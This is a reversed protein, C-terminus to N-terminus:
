SRHIPIEIIFKTGTGVTSECWLNGGHKEAVVQYSIALGMGTGKGVPKTTFFPDFLRSRLDEPIGSGNDAITIRLFNQATKFTVISIKNPATVIDEFSRDRNSEELADIANAIINMFVQNLQGAYCEVLPLDDYQKLVEIAPREAKAKLRHQLIMLTNDIGEHIDVPKFESEDLRSFNRLSIVIDRIRNSGVRMSKLINALDERLFDLDVEELDDQLSQSPNPYQKQYADLLRLLDQSHQNLHALNGHIFNVPNNIEHAVGAVMQGLASMKEGQIMQSQALQLDNLTTELMKNSTQQAEILQKVFQMYHNFVEAMIGIEDQSTVAVRLNFDQDQISQRTVETMARLPRVAVSTILWALLLGIAGSLLLSGIIINAQLVRAQNTLTAAEEIEDETAEALNAIEESFNKLDRMFDTQEIQRLRTQVTLFQQPPVAALDVQQFLVEFQQFYDTIKPDYTRLIKAAVKAESDTVNQKAGAFENSARLEQWAQKFHQHAELIHTFSTQPNENLTRGNQGNQNHLALELINGQLKSVKLLDAIAEAEITFAKETYQRSFSFGIFTGAIAVSFAFAYGAAIKQGLSLNLRNNWQWWVTKPQTPQKATTPNLSPDPSQNPHIM